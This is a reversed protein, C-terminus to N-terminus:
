EDSARAIVEQIVQILTGSAQTTLGDHSASVRTQTMRPLIEAWGEAHIDAVRSALEQCDPATVDSGNISYSVTSEGPELHCDPFVLASVIAAPLDPLPRMQTRIGDEIRKAELDDDYEAQCDVEARGSKTCQTMFDVTSLPIPTSSSSARPTRPGRSPRPWPSLEASRGASSSMPPKVDHEERLWDLLTFADGIVMEYTLLDDLPSSGEGGARSYRCVTSEEALGMLFGNDWDNLDSSTGGAELVITPSGSGRCEAALERGSGVPATGAFIM